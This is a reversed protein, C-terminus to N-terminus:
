PLKVFCLGSLFSFGQVAATFLPSVLKQKTKYKEMLDKSTYEHRIIVWQELDSLFIPM